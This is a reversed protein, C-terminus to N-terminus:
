ILNVEEYLKDMLGDSVLDRVRALFVFVSSFFKSNDGGVVYNPIGDINDDRELFVKSFEVKQPNSLKVIFNDVPGNYEEEAAAPAAYATATEAVAPMAETNTAVLNEEITLQTDGEVAVTNEEIAPLTETEANVVNEEVSQMAEAEASAVSYEEVASQASSIAPAISYEESIFNESGYKDQALKKFADADKFAVMRIIAIILQCLSILTLVTLSLGMNGAFLFIAGYVAMILVFEAIYRILNFSVTFPTSRKGLWFINIVANFFVLACLALAIINIIGYAPNGEPILPLFGFILSNGFYTVDGVSYLGLVAQYPPVGQVNALFNNIPASLAPILVTVNSVAIIVAPVSLIFIVSKIVGSGKFYIISQIILMLATVGLPIFVSLNLDYSNKGFEFFALVTLVTVAIIEALMAIKRAWAKNKGAVCVPILMVAALATASAYAILSFLGLDLEMGFYSIKCPFASALTARYAVFPLILGAILSLVAIIYTIMAPFKSRNIPTKAM